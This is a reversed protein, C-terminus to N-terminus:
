ITDHRKKSQLNIKLINILNIKIYYLYKSYSYIKNKSIFNNESLLRLNLYLFHIKFNYTYNKKQISSINKADGRPFTIKPTLASLKNNINKIQYEIPDLTTCFM